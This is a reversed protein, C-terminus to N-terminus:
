LPRAKLFTRSLGRVDAHLLLDRRADLENMLGKFLAAFIIGEKFLDAETFPKKHKSLLPSIQSAAETAAENQSVPKTFHSSQAKLM